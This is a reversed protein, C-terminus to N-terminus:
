GTHVHTLSIGSATLPQTNVQGHVGELREPIVLHSPVTEAMHRDTMVCDGWKGYAGLLQMCGLRAVWGGTLGQGGGGGTWSRNM